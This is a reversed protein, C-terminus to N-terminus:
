GSTAASAFRNSQRSTRVGVTKSANVRATISCSTVVNSALAEIRRSWQIAPASTSPVVSRAAGVDCATSATGGHFSCAIPM